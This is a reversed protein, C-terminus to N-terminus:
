AGRQLLGVDDEAIWQAQAVEEDVGFQLSDDTAARPTAFLM